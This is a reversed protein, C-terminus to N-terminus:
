KILLVSKILLAAYSKFFDSTAEGHLSVGVSPLQIIGSGDDMVSAGWNVKRLLHELTAAFEICDLRIADRYIYVLPYTITLPFEKLVKVFDAQREPGLLQWRCNLQAELNQIKAIAAQAIGSSPQDPAANVMGALMVMGSALTDHEQSHTTQGDLLQKIERAHSRRDLVEGILALIGLGVGGVLITWWEWPPLTPATMLSVGADLVIWIATAIIALM